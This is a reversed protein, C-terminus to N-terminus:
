EHLSEVGQAWNKTNIGQIGKIGTLIVKVTKVPVM